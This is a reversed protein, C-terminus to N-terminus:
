DLLSYSSLYPGLLSYIVYVLMVLEGLKRGKKRRRILRQVIRRGGRREGEREVQRRVRRRLNRRFHYDVRVVLLIEGLRKVTILLLLLDLHILIGKQQHHYMDGVRVKVGVPV